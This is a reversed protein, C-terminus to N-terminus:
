FMYMMLHLIDYVLLHDELPSKLPYSGHVGGIMTEHVFWVTAFCPNKTGQM